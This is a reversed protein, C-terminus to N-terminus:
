DRVQFNSECFFLYGMSHLYHTIGLNQQCFGLHIVGDQNISTHRSCLLSAIILTVSESKAVLVVPTVSVVVLGKVAVLELALVRVVVVGSVDEEVVGVVRM